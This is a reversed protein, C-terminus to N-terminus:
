LIPVGSFNRFDGWSLNGLVPTSSNCFYSAQKCDSVKTVGSKMYSKVINKVCMFEYRFENM